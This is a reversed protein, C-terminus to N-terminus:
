PVPQGQGDAATRREPYLTPYQLDPSTLKVTRGLDDRLTETVKRDGDTVSLQHGLWSYLLNWTDFTTATHDRDVAARASRTGACSRPSAFVPTFCPLYFADPPAHPLSRVIAGDGRVGRRPSRSVPITFIAWWCRRGSAM